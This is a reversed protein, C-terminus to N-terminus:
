ELRFPRGVFHRLAIAAILGKASDIWFTTLLFWVPIGEAVESFVRVPLPLLIFIWWLQPRSVLLACLLISDPFWFPSAAVPIFSMGSLYAIYFALEFLCFGLLDQLSLGLSRRIEDFTQAHFPFSGLKAVRFRM